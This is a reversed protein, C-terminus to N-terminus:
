MFGQNVVNAFIEKQFITPAIKGRISEGLMRFKSYLNYIKCCMKKKNFNNSNKKVFPLPFKGSYIM